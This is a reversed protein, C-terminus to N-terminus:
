SSNAEYGYVGSGELYCGIPEAERPFREDVDPTAGSERGETESPTRAHHDADISLPRHETDCM